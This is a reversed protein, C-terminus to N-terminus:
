GNDLLDTLERLERVEKTPEYWGGCTGCWTISTSNDPTALMASHATDGHRIKAERRAAMGANSLRYDDINFTPDDVLQRLYTSNNVATNEMPRGKGLFQQVANQNPDRDFQFGILSSARTM